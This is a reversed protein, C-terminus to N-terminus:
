QQVGTGGRRAGADMADEYVRVFRDLCADAEYREEVRRRNGAGLRQCLAADAQLRRLARALAPPDGAPAILDASEPPLITRVDGVDTAAVPLGCAMAELLAIPMQETRSSLVFASMRSYCPATDAVPGVFEVRDAVGLQQALSRLEEALAGGGVLCLRPRGDLEAFARLLTAHDKEARLGGVTGMVFDALPAGPRFRQLDVGNPLHHVRHLRWERRAIGLLVHSPVIVPVDRLALRRLWSRRRLRRLAEEPGFGDEHHVLPLGLSRAAIASEIAGWNYTLVLDPRRERLWRRLARVNAPLSGRRPAQAVEVRLGEGLGALAETRGDMAMVTHAARAGLRRMLQVARVQPGGAGFTAFVHV